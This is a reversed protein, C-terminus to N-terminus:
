APTCLADFHFSFEIIGVWGSAGGGINGPEATYRTHGPLMSYVNPPGGLIPMTRNSMIPIMVLNQFLSYTQSLVTSAVNVDTAPSDGSFVTATGTIDYHEKQSFAGITEWEWDHNEVGHVTVYSGPEFQGLEFSFVSVSPNQAKGAAAVLKFLANYVGPVTSVLNAM